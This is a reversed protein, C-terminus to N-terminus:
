KVAHIQTQLLSFGIPQGIRLEELKKELVLHALKLEVAALYLEGSRHPASISWYRSSPRGMGSDAYLIVVM